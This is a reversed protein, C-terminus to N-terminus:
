IILITMYAITNYGQNELLKFIKEYFENNHEIARSFSYVLKVIIEKDLKKHYAAMGVLLVKILAYHIVLKVYEDFIKEKLSFPFFNKIIYNVMLNEFIYEHEKMFPEFYVAYAEEYRRGIDETKALENYDIGKLFEMVCEKYASSNETFGVSFRQDNIEKVLEMQITLNASIADLDKEYTGTEIINNYEEVIYPVEKVNKNHIYDQIKKMSLGLIIMRHEFSCKRNQIIDISFNNLLKIYKDISNEYHTDDANIIYNLIHQSDAPEEIEDFEMIDPNLLALRVIEPCSFYASTEFIGSVINTTRPYIMCVKSLYDAGLKKHIRCLKNEDLFPCYGNDKSLKIKAYNESSPNSRNRTINRDLLPKLSPEFVKRYKKYTNEDINVRWGYCCNDECRIGICRFKRLYQPVILINSEM